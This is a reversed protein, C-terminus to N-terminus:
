ERWSTNLRIRTTQSPSIEFMKSVELNTYGEENMLRRMERVKEWTLKAQHNAEGANADIIKQVSEETHRTYVINTEPIPEIIKRQRASQLRKDETTFEYGPAGEGGRTMNTLQFGAENLQAIFNVEAAMARERSEFEMFTMMVPVAGERLLSKIWNNKYTNSKLDRLHSLYRAAPDKTVGVYRAFRTGERPDFLTYMTFIKGESFEHNQIRDVFHNLGEWEPSILGRVYDLNTKGNYSM